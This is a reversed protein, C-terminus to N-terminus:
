LLGCCCSIRAVLSGAGSSPTEFSGDGSVCGRCVSETEDTDSDVAGDDGMVWSVIESFVVTVCCVYEEVEAGAVSAVSGIAVM